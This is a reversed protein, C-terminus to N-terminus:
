EILYKQLIIAKNIDFFDLTFDLLKYPMDLSFAVEMADQIDELSCCTNSVKTEADDSCYLRMTTGMCKYGDKLMLYAAVSSDVGGSMAILATKEEIM